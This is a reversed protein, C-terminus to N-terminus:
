FHRKRGAPFVVDSVEGGGRGERSKALQREFQRSQQSQELLIHTYFSLSLRSKSSLAVKVRSTISTCVVALHAVKTVLNSIRELSFFVYKLQIFIIERLSSPNRREADIIKAESIPSLVNKIAAIKAM